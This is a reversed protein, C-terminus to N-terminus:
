RVFRAVVQLLDDLEFPKALHGAVNWRAAEERARLGATMLVVPVGIASNRLREILEWGSMVPMNLDLLVLAPHQTTIADLAEQGNTASLVPYGEAALVTTMVEVIAPDDDVVLV